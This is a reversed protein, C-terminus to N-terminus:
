YDILGDVVSDGGRGEDRMNNGLRECALAMCCSSSSVTLRSSRVVGVEGTARDFGGGDVCSM